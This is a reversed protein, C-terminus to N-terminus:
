VQFRNVESNEISDIFTLYKTKIVNYLVKISQPIKTQLVLKDLHPREWGWASDQLEWWRLIESQIKEKPTKFSRFIIIPHCVMDLSTCIVCLPHKLKWLSFPQAHWCLPVWKPTQVLCSDLGCQPYLFANICIKWLLNFVFWRIKLHLCTERGTPVM